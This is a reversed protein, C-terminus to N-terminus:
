VLQGSSTVEVIIEFKRRTKEPLAWTCPAPFLNPFNQALGLLGSLATNFNTGTGDLSKLVIGLGQVVCCCLTRLLVSLGDAPEAM